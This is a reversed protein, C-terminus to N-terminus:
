KHVSSKKSGHISPEAALKRRLLELPGGPKALDEPLGLIAILFEADLEARAKDVDIENFPLMQTAARKELLAVSQELQVESLQHPDLMTMKALAEKGISGRGSQQNNAQWWHLLLGISCNGWLAVAAEMEARPFKLSLWARGGITARKTFQVATAQSNYRFDRNLHLHSASAAVENVKDLVIQKDEATKASRPKGQNDAEFCIAREREADHTWLIPYTVNDPKKTPELTFPGRIKGAKGDGKIDSHYPGIQAVMDDVKSLPPLDDLAKAMGPLWLQHNEILRWASQALSLDAIRCIDWTDDQPLPGQMAEGVKDSGIMIASGGMPADEIQRVDGDDILRRIAKATAYGDLPTSPRDDLVVYTARGADENASKSKIGVTMAEAMGTDASFSTEKSQQGTISLLVVHDYNAAIKQRSKHWAEGSMLSLPTILGLKGGAKLKRHGLEIFGTAEGAQGDHCHGGELTALLAKFTKAMSTQENKSAGFAAFSSNPVGVKDAEQGTDRTFPPNMIVMDFSDHAVSVFVNHQKEGKAGLSTAGVADITKQSALLDLSGLAYKDKKQAGYPVTMILSDTYTKQPHVGSLMAATLHAAAPLVDAGVLVSAMMAPHIDESNNGHLEYYQGLRTYATSLLTGTGCAFDGVKLKEVKKQDSWSFGNPATNRDLLLGIMLAASAPTTYYAALFKRDAILKQFVAGTLDHSRTLSNEVLKTATDALTICLGKGLDAPMVEFIRRAIDFIPWYNVKLIARWEYLIQGQTLAGSGKMEELTRISALDGPGHALSAHFMFANALITVAMRRTQESDEQCLAQAIRDLAPQFKKEIGALQGAGQQVGLMLQDAAAEVVAPPVTAAQAIVSLDAISGKLWGQSPWRVYDKDSAGTFLAFEIDDATRLDEALATGALVRLRLPTRIAISSLIKKGNEKLEHGLRELAEAEVKVAPMVENEIVVPSVGPETILIDPRKSNGTLQSTNESKVINPNHWSHRTTRLIQAIADNITPETTAM